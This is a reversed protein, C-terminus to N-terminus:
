RQGLERLRERAKQKLDGDVSLRVVAQFDAQADKVRRLDMLILGRRYVLRLSRPEYKLASNVDTLAEDFQGRAQHLEARRVRATVSYPRANLVETYDQLARSYEDAARHIDGRLIM